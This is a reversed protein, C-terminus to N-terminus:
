IGETRMSIVGDKSLEPGPDGLFQVDFVALRGCQGCGGRNLINAILRHVTDLNQNQPNLSLTVRAAKHSASTAMTHRRQTNSKYDVGLLCWAKPRFSWVWTKRM